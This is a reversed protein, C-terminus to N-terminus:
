LHFMNVCLGKLMELEKNYEEIRDLIHKKYEDNMEEYYAVIKVQNELSPIPIKISKLNTSYVHPQALGTQLKYIKDQFMKLFYYLYEKNISNKPIISFCDSAWVKKNYKSIFGAYAGSSSCLITNECTNYENHFGMPKQGGGIVPYEGEVLADKKIGKGNQFECVEGLTKVESNKYIENIENYKFYKKFLIGDSKLQEKRLKITDISKTIQECEEVIEQQRELSPIPIKISKIDDSSIVGLNTTFKAKKNTDLRNINLYQYIYRIDINNNKLKLCCVGARCATKGNVLYCKGLGVNDGIINNMSGGSTILLLYNEDYDFSYKDHFGIPNVSKCSYFPINGNNNMDNSNFRGNQFECVEGLTKVVVGDNYQREETKIYANYSLNYNNNKINNIPIIMLRKVSNCDDPIDLFEINETSGNKKFIIVATKIATHEFAKGSVSVIKIINVNKCMYERFKKFKNGVFLEGDPLVIACTGNEELMSICHETFLCAGNNTDIPYVDKFNIGTNIGNIEKNNNFKNEIDKYKMSTGFPPNTFIVDFKKTGIFKNDCLSNCLQLNSSFEGTALLTSIQGFKITDRETECGYINSPLINGNSYGRTLLGGTGMCPDYISPNDYAKIMDNLGCGHLIAHILHRPTFFQGLEKAGKGGSYERFAEHIDGFSTSFADIFDKDIKLEGVIGILKMLTREDKGFNFASDEEAYIGNFINKLFNNVLNKWEDLPYETKSINNIDCCYPMYKNYKERSVEKCKNYLESEENQFQPQLIHITLIKMIDNQAKTGVVSKEDRLLNHCRTIINKLRDKVQKYNTNTDSNKELTWIIENIEVNCMSERQAAVTGEDIDGMSIKINKNIPDAKYPKKNEVLAKFKEIAKILVAKARPKNRATLYDNSDLGLEKCIEVLENIEKVSLNTAM